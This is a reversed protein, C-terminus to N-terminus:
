CKIIRMSENFHMRFFNLEFLLVKNNLSYKKELFCKPLKTPLKKTSSTNIKQLNNTRNKCIIIIKLFCKAKIEWCKKANFM